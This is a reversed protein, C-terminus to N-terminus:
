SETSILKSVVACDRGLSDVLMIEESTEANLALKELTSDFCFGNKFFNAKDGDTSNVLAYLEEIFKNVAQKTDAEPEPFAVALCLVSLAAMIMIPKLLKAKTKM